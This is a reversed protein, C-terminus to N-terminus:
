FNNSYYNSIIILILEVVMVFNLSKRSRFYNCYLLAPFGPPISSYGVHDSRPQLKKKINIFPNSMSPVNKM